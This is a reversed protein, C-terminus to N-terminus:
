QATKIFSESDVLYQANEAIEESSALGYNIQIMGESSTGTRVKKAKFVGDVKVFVIKDIGLDVVSQKPVWLSESPPLQIKATVLHGIHLGQSKKTYVRVQMFDDDENFFPQVFDVSTEEKQGNGFDLQVRDGKRVSASQKSPIDLEIRLSQDTIINFLTQGASVYHGERVITGSVSQASPTSGAGPSATEMENMSTAEKSNARRPASISPTSQDAIV